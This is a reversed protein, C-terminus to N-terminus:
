SESNETPFPNQQLIHGTLKEGTMISPANLNGSTNRPFISSDLVRLREVGIISCKPEVVSMPDTRAGM